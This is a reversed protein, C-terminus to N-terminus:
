SFSSLMVKMLGKGNNIKKLVLNDWTQKHYKTPIYKKLNEFDLKVCFLYYETMDYLQGYLQKEIVNKNIEEINKNIDEINEYFDTKNYEYYNTINEDKILYRNLAKLYENEKIDNNYIYWIANDNIHKGLIRFTKKVKGNGNESIKNRISTVYYYYEIGNVKKTTIFGM